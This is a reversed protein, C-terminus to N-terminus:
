NKQNKKKFKNKLNNKSQYIMKIKLNQNLQRINIMKSLNMLKKHKIIKNKIIKFNM